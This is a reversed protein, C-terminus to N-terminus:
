LAFEKLFARQPMAPVPWGFFRHWMLWSKQDFLGPEAHTLADKFADWGFANKFEVVEQWDGLTMVQALLRRPQVFSVEPTQWWILKAAMRKLQESAEM